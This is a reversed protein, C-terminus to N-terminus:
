GLFELAQDFLLLLLLVGTLYSFIKSERMATFYAKFFFLNSKLTYFVSGVQTASLHNWNLNADTRM